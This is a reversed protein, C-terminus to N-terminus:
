IGITAAKAFKRRHRNDTGGKPLYAVDVTAEPDVSAIQVQHTTSWRTADPYAPMCDDEVKERETRLVEDLGQYNKGACLVPFANHIKKFQSLRHGTKTITLKSIPGGKM